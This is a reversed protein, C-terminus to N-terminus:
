TLGVSSLCLIVDSDNHDHQKLSPLRWGRDARSRNSTPQNSTSLGLLVSTYRVLPDAGVITRAAM